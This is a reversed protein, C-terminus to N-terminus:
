FFADDVETCLPNTCSLTLKTCLGRRNKLTERVTLGSGCFNGNERRTVSAKLDGLDILRLGNMECISDTCPGDTVLPSVAIDMSSSHPKPLALKKETATPAAVPSTEEVTFKGSKRRPHIRKRPRRLSRQKRGSLCSSIGRSSM